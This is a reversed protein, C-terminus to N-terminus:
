QRRFRDRRCGGGRGRPRGATAIAEAYSMVMPHEIGPIQPIRPKVGTALVVEDFGTLEEVHARSGLRVTVAYKDLMTTYYRITGAFEEKGPIRRALDFQGGIFENAEFLTM